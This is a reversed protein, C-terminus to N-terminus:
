LIAEKHRSAHCNINVAVPLSAIHCPFVEVHVALATTRGGLGQPGIGLNNIAELLERELCAIETDPHPQGLPRLLAEKALLAAKEFTGGIGVGVVVPPCPNPGAARVQEIVFKKVGEVGEAPKLMRLGSMNESGGGKPAVIIKLKDGPVIRTHIVAPTNDGTNKRRLPHDVISKRLYGEQYGRRVGENVAEYLDGGTIVVEQGVELFVVAFGTDQCMPVQEERAIRANELLQQLVDRGTLSIEQDLAEKFAELVDEGLEYNAKQCLEAVTATITAADVLRM